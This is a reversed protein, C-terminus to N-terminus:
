IPRPGTTEITIPLQTIIQTFNGLVEALNVDKLLLSLECASSVIFNVNPKLNPGQDLVNQESHKLMLANNKVRPPFRIIDTNDDSIHSWLRMDFAKLSPSPANHLFRAELM